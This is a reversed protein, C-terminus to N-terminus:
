CTKTKLILKLSILIQNYSKIYQKVGLSILKVFICILAHQQSFSLKKNQM